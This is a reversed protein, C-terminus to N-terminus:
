GALVVRRREKGVAAVGAADTKRVRQLHQVGGLLLVPGGVCCPSWAEAPRRNPAGRTPAPPPPSMGLAASM